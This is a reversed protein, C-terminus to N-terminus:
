VEIEIAEFCRVAMLRIKRATQTDSKGRIAKSVTQESVGLLKAIAKGTGKKTHLQKSMNKQINTTHNLSSIVNCIYPCKEMNLCFNHFFTM